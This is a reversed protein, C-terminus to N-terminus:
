RMLLIKTGQEAWKLSSLWQFLFSSSRNRELFVQQQIVQLLNPEHLNKLDEQNSNIVQRPISIEVELGESNWIM